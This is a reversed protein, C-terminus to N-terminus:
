EQSQLTIKIEQNQQPYIAKWHRIHVECVRLSYPEYRFCVCIGGPNGASLQFVSSPPLPALNYSPLFRENLRTFHIKSILAAASDGFGTIRGVLGSHETILTPELTTRNLRLLKHYTDFFTTSFHLLHSNMLCYMLVTNFIRHTALQRSIQWRGRIVPLTEEFQVYAHELGLQLQKNLEEAFLRTLLEFWDSSFQQLSALDKARLHIDHTYSLLSLLNRTASEVAKRKL